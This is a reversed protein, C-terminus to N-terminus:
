RLRKFLNDLFLFLATRWSSKFILTCCVVVFGFGFGPGLGAYFWLSDFWNEGETDLIPGNGNSSREDPCINSLPAGCLGNNGEYMSEENITQLQNGTPIRGSLNNFSLNLHSIRYITSLSSPIPGSLQNRSLDLSELNKMNGIKDPIRGQLHNGSLNLNNLELLDTVEEPIEGSISNESLQISKLFPLTRSYKQEMGKTSEVMRREFYYLFRIGFYMVPDDSIMASFNNVCRPISGSLNNRALDLLRLAKLQCLQEPFGGYINNSQLRLYVLGHMEEDIWPPITDVLGNDGLDLIHLEKLNSLSSPIKGILKNQQLHLAHLHVLIGLSNPIPGNFSNNSLDLVQLNKLNALCSPIRGSFQNSSIDILILSQIDCLYPPIEGTLHNDSLILHNLSMNMYSGVMPLPGDLFNESLDLLYIELPISTIQGEFKNSNLKIVRLSGQSEQFKPLKGSINNHSLDLDNTQSYVNEFWGPIADSISANSMILRKVARQTALWPPFQPGVDVSALDISRLQFPPIWQPSVKLLLSNSSISLDKLESLKEFHVESLVGTLSNNSIDLKALKSLQGLSSPVSGSFKNNSIDLERLHSLGGLEFPIPDSLSNFSLHLVELNKYKQIHSPLYRFFDNSILYLEKLSNLLCGSPDRIFNPLSSNFQNLSLDLVQLSCLNSISDPIPGHFSNGELNLIALSTLNELCYPIMGQFYNGSLDMQVLSKLKCLSNPLPIAFFNSSLDLVILSTLKEMSNPILRDFSNHDLHLQQLSTINSLWLPITSNFNNWQLNLSTLSTFNILSIPPFTNLGCGALNLSVLSPLLNISHLWDNDEWIQVGSLDLIKLSSLETVWKLTNATLVYDGVLFHFSYSIGPGIHLYQLRSLNGLDQPINGGFGASSLNLFELSKLSGFFAPIEIGSFNNMSLDLSLLFELNLLSPNIEGGLRNRSFNAFYDKDDFYRENDFSVPNSLDLKIVHGTKEDCRIGEWACCNDGDWSSLRNSEDMLGKRLDSLAERESEICRLKSNYDRQCCAFRLKILFLLVLFLLINGKNSAM